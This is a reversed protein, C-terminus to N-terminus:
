HFNQHIYIIKDYFIPLGSGTVSILTVTVPFVVLNDQFIGRCVPRELIRRLFEAFIYTEKSEGLLTEDSLFLAAINLSTCAGADLIIISPNCIHESYTTRILNTELLLHDSSVSCFNQIVLSYGRVYLYCSNNM